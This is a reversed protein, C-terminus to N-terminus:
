VHQVGSQTNLRTNLYVVLPLVIAWVAAFVLFVNILSLSSNLAGLKIGGIYSLAGFVAGTMAQVGVNFRGLWSLSHNLTLLFHAWLLALWLPLWPQGDVFSIVGLAALTQDVVLGVPLITLSVVDAKRSPSLAFHLAMIVVVAIVAQHTFLASLWWVSQFIVLNILWFNRM